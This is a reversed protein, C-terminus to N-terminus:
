NAGHGTLVVKITRLLIRFDSWPTWTDIYRLDTRVKEAVSHVSVDYGNEIQALGTVGPKVSLRRQYDPLQAGLDRVFMPREPRPGVLSMEGRLVSILQPVEDLRSKRLFRGLSTIRPDNKTAWVPGSDKEANHVMTRFKIMRFPQGCVNERRRERRRHCSDMDINYARRTRRRSNMGVRTQTYFVPGSSTLKILIPLVIFLPTALVLGCLSGVIDTTRKFVDRFLEYARQRSSIVDPTLFTYAHSVLLFFPGSVFEGFFVTLSSVRRTRDANFGVNELSGLQLESSDLSLPYSSRERLPDNNLNDPKRTSM